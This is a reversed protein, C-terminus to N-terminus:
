LFAQDHSAPIHLAIITDSRLDDVAWRKRADVGMLLIDIPGKLNDGGGESADKKTPGLLEGKTISQDASNILWRSGLLAAASTGMLLVGLIVLLVAWIPTRRRKKTPRPAPPVPARRAPRPPALTM